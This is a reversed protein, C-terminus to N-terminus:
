AAEVSYTLGSAAVAAMMAYAGSKALTAGIAPGGLRDALWERGADTVARVAVSTAAFGADIFLFDSM